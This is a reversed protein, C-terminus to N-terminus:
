RSDRENAPTYVGNKSKVYDVILQAAEALRNAYGDGDTYEGRTDPRLAERQSAVLVPKLQNSIPTHIKLYSASPGATEKGYGRFFYDGDNYYRYIIRSIARVMEGEVTKAKGNSPVLEDFYADLKEQVSDINKNEKLQKKNKYSEQLGPQKSELGPLSTLEKVATNYNKFASFFALVKDKLWNIGTTIMSENAETVRNMIRTAKVDSVKTNERQLALLVQKTAENVKALAKEYIEKYGVTSRTTADKMKIVTKSVELNKIQLEELKTFIKEKVEDRAKLHTAIMQEFLKSQREIEEDLKEWIKIQVELTATPAQDDAEKLKIKRTQKGERLIMSFWNSYEETNTVPENTVVGKMSNIPCYMRGDPLQYLTKEKISNIKYSKSLVTEDVAPVVKDFIESFRSVDEKLQTKNEHLQGSSASKVADLGKKLDTLFERLGIVGKYATSSILQSTNSVVYMCVGDGEDTIADWVLMVKKNGLDVEAKYGITWKRGNRSMADMGTHTLANGNTPLFKVDFGSDLIFKSIKGAGTSTLKKDKSSLTNLKEAYKAPIETNDFAAQIEEPTAGLDLARKGFDAFMVYGFPKWSSAEYKINDSNLKSGAVFRAIAKNKDTITSAVGAGDKGTVVLSLMREWDKDSTIGETLIERLIKTVKPNKGEYFNTRDVNKNSYIFSIVFDCTNNQVPKIGQISMNPIAFEKMLTEELERKIQYTLAKARERITQKDDESVVTARVDITWIDGNSNLVILDADKRKEFFSIIFKTIKSDEVRIIPKPTQNQNGQTIEKLIGYILNKKNM